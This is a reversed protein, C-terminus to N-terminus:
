DMAARVLAAGAATLWPRNLSVGWEILGRRDARELARWCVKPPQGTCEALMEPAPRGAQTAWRVAHVVDVDSIDKTAM